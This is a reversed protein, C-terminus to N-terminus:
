CSEHKNFAGKITEYITINMLILLLGYISDELPITGLRISLNEANNYWVIPENIWSGTLIGNSIFFFPIILVYSLLAHDLNWRKSVSYVLFAGTLLFTTSTYLKNYNFAGVISLMIVLVIVIARHYKLKFDPQLYKMAFYTFVCAYPICFFFLLEELPLGLFNIGILYDPNFGWVGWKTFFVDWVIFFTGVLLNAPLFFRWERYFPHKSYFSFVLPISICSLNIILYLFNNM